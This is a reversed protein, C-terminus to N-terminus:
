PPNDVLAVQPFFQAPNGYRIRKGIKISDENVVDKYREALGNVNGIDWGMIKLGFFRDLIDQRLHDEKYGDGHISEYNSKYQDILTKLELRNKQSPTLM